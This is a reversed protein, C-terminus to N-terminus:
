PPVARRLGADRDFPHLLVKIAVTRDLSPDFGRFVEAM